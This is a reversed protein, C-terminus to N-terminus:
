DLKAVAWGISGFSIFVSLEHRVFWERGAYAIHGPYCPYMSRVDCVRHRGEGANCVVGSARMPVSKLVASAIECGRAIATQCVVTVWLRIGSWQRRQAVGVGVEGGIIAVVVVVVATGETVVEVVAVYRKM